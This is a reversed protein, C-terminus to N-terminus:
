DPRIRTLCFSRSVMLQSTLILTGYVKRRQAKPRASKSPSSRRIPPEVMRTLINPLPAELRKRRFVLGSTTQEDQDFQVQTVGASAKRKQLLSDKHLSAVAWMKRTLKVLEAKSINSLMSDVFVFLYKFTM